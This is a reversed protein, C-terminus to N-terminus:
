CQQWWLTATVEADPFREVVAQQIPPHHNDDGCVIGGEVILPVVADIQDRVEEYTHLGDIFCFRIPRTPHREIYTRWPMRYARINLGDTNALFTAYVDREAALLESVEGKSGQWTDVAHVVKPEVAAALAITSRGEWSGIEVVDGTLHNTSRALDALAACSPEDFWNEHFLPSVPGSGPPRANANM